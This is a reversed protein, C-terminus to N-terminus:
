ESMANDYWWFQMGLQVRSCASRKANSIITKPCTIYLYTGKKCQIEQISISTHKWFHCIMRILMFDQVKKFTKNLHFPGKFSFFTWILLLYVLWATTRRPGDSLHRKWSSKSIFFRIKGQKCMIWLYSHPLLLLELASEIKGFPRKRRWQRNNSIVRQRIESRPKSADDVTRNSDVASDVSIGNIGGFIWFHVSKASLERCSLFRWDM